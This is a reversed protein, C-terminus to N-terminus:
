AKLLSEASIQTLPPHRLGAIKNRSAFARLTPRVNSQSLVLKNFPIDRSSSLTLKQVASAM